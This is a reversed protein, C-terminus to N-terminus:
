GFGHTGGERTISRVTQLFATKFRDASIAFMSNVAVSRSVSLTGVSPVRGDITGDCGRGVMEVSCQAM